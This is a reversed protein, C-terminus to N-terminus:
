GNSCQAPIAVDVSGSTFHITFVGPGNMALNVNASLTVSVSGGGALTGSNPTLTLTGSGSGVDSFSSTWTLDAGGSNSLAFFPWSTPGSCNILEWCPDGGPPSCVYTGGTTRSPDRTVHV